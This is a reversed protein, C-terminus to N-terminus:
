LAKFTKFHEQNELVFGRIAIFYYISGIVGIVGGFILNFVLIIIPMTLPEFREVIGDPKTLVEKSYKMDNTASIINWIGALIGVFTVIQVAGIVLWIIANTNIKQSLQKLLKDDQSSFESGMMCGCHVCMVAEDHISQGCKSCFKM